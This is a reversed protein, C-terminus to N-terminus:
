RADATARTLMGHEEAIDCATPNLREVIRASAAHLVEREHPELVDFFLERITETHRRVAGLMAQRGANTLSVWTGRADDDCATREVLGRAEMRAVQHSVRSKEWGLLEGIEGTRLRKDHAEGLVLIVGYDAQSVGADRQLQRDLALNLQGTMVNFARWLAWDDPDLTTGDTM